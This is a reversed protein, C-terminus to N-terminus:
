VIHSCYLLRPLRANLSLSTILQVEMSIRWGQMAAAGFKVKWGAKTYEGVETHKKTVPRELYAGM